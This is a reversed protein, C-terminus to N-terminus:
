SNYLIIQLNRRVGKHSKKIAVMKLNTLFIFPIISESKPSNKNAWNTPLMSQVTASKPLLLSFVEIKTVAVRIVYWTVKLAVKCFHPRDLSQHLALNINKWATMNAIYMVLLVHSHVLLSDRIIKKPKNYGTQGHIAGIM